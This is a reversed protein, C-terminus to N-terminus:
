PGASEYKAKAAEGARILAVTISTGLGRWERYTETCTPTYLSGELLSLAEGDSEPVERWEFGEFKPNYWRIRRQEVLSGKESATARWGAEVLLGELAQSGAEGDEQRLSLLGEDVIGVGEGAINISYSGEGLYGVVTGERMSGRSQGVWVQKGSGYRAEGVQADSKATETRAMPPEWRYPTEGVNNWM